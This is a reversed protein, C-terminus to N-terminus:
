YFCQLERTVVWFLSEEFVRDTPPHAPASPAPRAPQTPQVPQVSRPLLGPPPSGSPSVLTEAKPDPESSM